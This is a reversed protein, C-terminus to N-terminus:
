AVKFKAENLEFQLAEFSKLEVRRYSGTTCGDLRSSCEVRKMDVADAAAVKIGDGISGKAAELQGNQIQDVIQKAIESSM